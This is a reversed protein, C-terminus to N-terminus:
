GTHVLSVVAGLASAIDPKAEPPRDPWVMMRVEDVGLEGFGHLQEAIREADGHVLYPTLGTPEEGILAHPDVGLDLSRRVSAPDRGVDDCARSFEDILPGFADVTQPQPSWANWGDALRAALRMMKPGVAGVTTPPGGPTPGAPALAGQASHVAGDHDVSGDRLLSCVIEVTDVARSYRPEADIGFSAYDEPTNGAGIGLEYRGGTIEDLTAAMKAIVAPARLPPNIMSHGVTITESVAAVAGALSAGEWYGYTDLGGALLADELVILDFGAAEAAQVQARMNDWGPAPHETRGRHGHMGLQIGIRM